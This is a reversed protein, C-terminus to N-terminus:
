PLVAPASQGEQKLCDQSETGALFTSCQTHHCHDCSVSVNETTQNVSSTTHWGQQLCDEQNVKSEIRYRAHIM